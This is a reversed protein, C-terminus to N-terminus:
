SSNTWSNGRYKSGLSEVEIVLDNIQTLADTSEKKRGVAGYLSSLLKDFEQAEFVGQEGERLTGSTVRMSVPVPRIPLYNLDAFLAQVRNSEGQRRRMSLFAVTMVAEWNRGFCRGLRKLGLIEAYSLSWIRGFYIPRLHDRVRLYLRHDAASIRLDPFVEYLGAHTVTELKVAKFGITARMLGHVLYEGKCYESLQEPHRLDFVDLLKVASHIRNDEVRTTDLVYILVNTDHRIVQKRIAHVLVWLLSTSWSSFESAHEYHWLFHHQLMSRAVSRPIVALCSHYDVTQSHALPDVTTLTNGEPGGRSQDSSARFLFRPKAEAEAADREHSASM